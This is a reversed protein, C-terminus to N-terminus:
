LCLLREPLRALLVSPEDRHPSSGLPSFQLSLALTLSPHSLNRSYARCRSHTLTICTQSFGLARSPSSLAIYLSHSFSLSLSLSFSPSLALALSPSHLPRVHLLRRAESLQEQMERLQEADAETSATSATSSAGGGGGGVGVSVGGGAGAGMGGVGGRASEGLENLEARLAAAEKELRAADARLAEREREAEVLAARCASLEGRAAELSLGPAASPSMAAVSPTAPEVQARQLLEM